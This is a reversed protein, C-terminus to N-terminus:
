FNNVLRKIGQKMQLVNFNLLYGLNLNSLKLYTLLQATHIDNLSDVVKLELIIKSEVLVDLRYGEDLKLGKYNIPQAKQRETKIGRLTLEHVLCREYTSELLGPGLEKHVEIAAGMIQSTLEETEM